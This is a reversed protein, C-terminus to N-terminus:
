EDVDDSCTYPVTLYCFLLELFYCVYRASDSPDSDAEAKHPDEDFSGEEDQFDRDETHTMHAQIVFFLM